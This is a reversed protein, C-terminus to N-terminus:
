KCNLNDSIECQIKFSIDSESGIIWGHNYIQGYPHNIMPRVMNLYNIIKSDLMNEKVLIIPGCKGKHSLLASSVVNQWNHPNVFIFNHGAETIGFGFNRSRRNFWWGFNKGIDKYMAFCVSQNYVSEGCPIRQVHGLNFLDKKVKDSIKSDDGLFYIYAGGYRQKLADLTDKPISDKNIFLVGEGTKAGWATEILGYDPTERSVVVVNDKHNGKITSIYDDINKGIKFSDRGNINRFSIKNERLQNKVNNSINGVIIVKNKFDLSIGKPNLRKIELLVSKPIYNENIYLIPGNIPYDMLRTALIGEEKKDERVLIVSSPRNENCNSPYVLQAINIAIDNFNKGYVRTTNSTIKNIPNNKKTNNFGMQKKYNPNHFIMFYM